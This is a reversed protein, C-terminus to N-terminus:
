DVLSPSEWNPWPTQRLLASTARCKGTSSRKAMTVGPLRRYLIPLAVTHRCHLGTSGLEVVFGTNSGHKYM